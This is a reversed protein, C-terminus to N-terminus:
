QEEVGRAVRRAGVMVHADIVPLAAHDVRGPSSLGDFDDVVDESVGVETRLEGNDGSRSNAIVLNTCHAKPTALGRMSVWAERIAGKSPAHRMPGRETPRNIRRPSVVTEVILAFWTQLTTVQPHAAIVLNAGNGTISRNRVQQPGITPPVRSGVLDKRAARPGQSL